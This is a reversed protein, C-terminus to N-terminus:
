GAGTATEVILDAIRGAGDEGLARVFEGRRRTLAELDKIEGRLRDALFGIEGNEAAHEIIDNIAACGQAQPILSVDGLRNRGHWSLDPACLSERALLRIVLEHSVNHAPLFAVPVGTVFSELMTRMGATTICVDSRVLNALFEAHGLTGAVCDDRGAAAISEGIRAAARQGAAFLIRRYGHDRPIAALVGGVVLDIFAERTRDPMLWSEMGGMNVLIQGDPQWRRGDTELVPGVVEFRVSEGWSSREWEKVKDDVGIFREIVYCATSPAPPRGTDGGRFAGGGPETWLWGLGEILVSPVGYDHAHWTLVSNMVSVVCHARALEAALEGAPRASLSEARVVADFHEPGALNLTDGIGIFVRRARGAMRRSVALLMSTTGYGWGDAGFIVTPIGDAM